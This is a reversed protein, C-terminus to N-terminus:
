SFINLKIKLLNNHTREDGGWSSRYKHYQKGYAKGRELHLTRNNVVWKYHSIKKEKKRKETQEIEDGKYKKINVCKDASRIYYYERDLREDDECEELLIIISNDLDLKCSNCDGRKSDWKHEKFRVSLDRYTSGIYQLGNCDEILYIKIM